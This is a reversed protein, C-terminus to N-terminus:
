SRIKVPKLGSFALALLACFTVNNAPIQLNFDVASHMTVWVLVMVLCFGVGKQVGSRGPKQLQIARVLVWLCVGGMLLLVPVGLDSAIELYDNHAHAYNGQADLGQYRTFVSQFSGGGSGTWFYDKLIASTDSSVRLRSESAVSTQELREVVKDFGFWQGVIWADIVILSALLLTLRFSFRRGLLVAIGGAVALSIFFASNGMRSRSLVLAIVMLALFVRLFVKSSVMVRLFSTVLGRWSDIKETSLQSVLLGIGAALTMVLYGALHNRNVFTGTTQGKGVYKDVFFGWELGTLVMVTGYVAQFLGSLVLIWLFVKARQASNVLVLTLTFAVVCGISNLLYLRSATLDLSIPAWSDTLHLDFARPSLASLVVGPLPVTQLFGWLPVLVLIVAPWRSRRFVRRSINVRGFAWLTLWVAFILCMLVVLLSLAWPRNSGFPLPAWIIAGLFFM